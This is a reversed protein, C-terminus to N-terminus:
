LGTIIILAVLFISLLLSHNARTM